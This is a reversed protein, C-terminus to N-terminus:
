DNEDPSQVAHPPEQRPEPLYLPGKQGCGTLVISAALIMGWLLLRGRISASM